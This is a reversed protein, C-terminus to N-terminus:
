TRCTDEEPLCRRHSRRAQVSFSPNSSSSSPRLIIECERERECVIPIEEASFFSLCVSMGHRRIVSVQQEGECGEWLGEEGGTPDPFFVCCQM